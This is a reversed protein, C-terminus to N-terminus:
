ATITEKNFYATQNGKFIINKKNDKIVISKINRSISKITIRFKNRTTVAIEGASGVIKVWENRDIFKRLDPHCDNLFGRVSNYDNNSLIFKPDIEYISNVKKKNLKSVKTEIKKINVKARPQKITNKATEVANDLPLVKFKRVTKETTM